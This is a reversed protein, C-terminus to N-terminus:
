TGVNEGSGIQIRLFLEGSLKEAFGILKERELDEAPKLAPLCSKRSV